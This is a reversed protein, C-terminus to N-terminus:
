SRELETLYALSDAVAEFIDGACTDLEVIRQAHPAAALISPVDITGKGVATHPQDKVGPGDKVHLALVRDGLTRLLAPVDAGGVAAWYTDVELFVEPALRDALEELATRGDFRPEIEWWHNHYGIRMGREAAKEAFGNLTAATRDLGEATTFEEHAIGGPIIVLDTGVTAIADFVEAAEKDFLAYAHTSNVSIGLDDVVKRFGTPDATPDYAEVATYGIGALRSLTGDRDAAIQDRLTYLQISLPTAM